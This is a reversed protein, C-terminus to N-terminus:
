CQQSHVHELEGLMEWFEPYSKAVCERDDIAIQPLFLGLLGFAMALRHDGATELMAGSHLPAPNIALTSGDWSINAGVKRLENALMAGRPSEKLDVHSINTFVVQKGAFLAWVALPPLLDPSEKLNITVKEGREIQSMYALIHEDPQMGSALCNPINVEVRRIKAAAWIYAAASFDGPVSYNIGHYCGSSITIVQGDDMVSGGWLAMMKKTMEVYPWSVPAGAPRFRMKQGSLPAAMLLGSLFQSSEAVSVALPEKTIARKNQGNLLISWSDASREFEAKIGLNQLFTLLPQIPRESLRRAGTLRFSFPLFLSFAALFRLATGAAGVDLPKKPALFEAPRGAIQWSHAKQSIEVGLKKLAAALFLTDDCILPKNLLSPGESLASLILARQTLSKASPAYITLTM